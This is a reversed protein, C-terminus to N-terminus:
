GPVGRQVMWEHVRVVISVSFVVDTECSNTDDTAHGHIRETSEKNTLSVPRPLEQDDSSKSVRSLLTDDPLNAPGM